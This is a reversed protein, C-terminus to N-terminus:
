HNNLRSKIKREELIKPRVEKTQGIIQSRNRVSNPFSLLIFNYLMSWDGTGMGSEGGATKLFQRFHCWCQRYFERCYGAGARATKLLSSLPVPVPLPIRLLCQCRVPPKSFPRFHCWDRRRFEQCAATCAIKFLALNPVM